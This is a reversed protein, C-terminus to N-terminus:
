DKSDITPNNLIIHKEARLGSREDEVIDYTSPKSVFRWNHNDFSHSNSNGM